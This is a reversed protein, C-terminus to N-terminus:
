AGEQEGSGEPAEDTLPGYDAVLHGWPAVARPHTHRIWAGGPPLPQWPDGHRDWLPGSAPERPTDYTTM